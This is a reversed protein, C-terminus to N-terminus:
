LYYYIYKYIKTSSTTTTSITTTTTTKGVTRADNRLADGTTGSVNGPTRAKNSKANREDHKDNTTTGANPRCGSYQDWGISSKSSENRNTTAQYDDRGPISWRLEFFITVYNQL